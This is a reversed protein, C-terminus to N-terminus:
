FASGGDRLKRRLLKGSATRPLVDLWAFRDPVKYAALRTRCFEDLESPSPREDGEAVCWAVPRAGFGDHSEGVVGAERICPHSELVSEVEAPYINEGGSIILDERRELVRLRGARDLVGADGTHLWGGQLARATAESLGQYGRMLTPGRVCIEGVSGPELIGGEEDVIRLETGPLPVLGGSLPGDWGGPVRTAVQSAAETLGYTPAMPYGQAQAQELLAEPAPGGGLLVCRLTSPLPSPGRVAMVRELMTAVLSVGSIRQQDLAQAVEEAEFGPHIVACSGAICARILISLGGVHFLPMCLLWRDEATTGLLEASALASAWFAEASLMVGKPTGSTGSTYLIALLDSHAESQVASEGPRTPTVVPEGWQDEAVECRILGPCHAAAEEARKAQENPGHLLFRAGSDRLVYTLERSVFRLNLPLLIAGIEQVAWLLRVWELGNDFLAAVTQGPEVGLAQLKAVWSDTEERLERYSLGRGAFEVAAADPTTEARQTLWSGSWVAHEVRSTM